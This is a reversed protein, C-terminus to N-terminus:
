SKLLIEIKWFLHQSVKKIWKKGWYKLNLPAVLNQFNQYERFFEQGKQTIVFVQRKDTIIQEVLRASILKSCHEQAPYYSMNAKRTIKSIVVGEHGGERIIQLVDGLSRIRTRNQKQSLKTNKPSVFLTKSTEHTM